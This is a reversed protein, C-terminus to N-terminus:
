ATNKIVFRYDTAAIAGYMRVKFREVIDKSFAADSDGRQRFIQIPFVEHWVFQRKFNGYFWNSESIGNLYASAYVKMGSYTNKFISTKNNETSRIEITNAIRDGTAKLAKPVLLACEGVEIYNGREDKMKGLLNEAADIDTYDVLANSSKVNGNGSTYLATAVGLPRYVNNNVDSIGALILQDQTEAAKEGILSARKLLQGTQDFVIAEETISLIRGYKLANTTVYKEEIGASEEYDMQEHVEKLGDLAGFGVIKDSQKMASYLDVLELGVKKYGTYADMVKKSILQGTIVPFATSDIAEQIQHDNEGLRVLNGGLTQNVPGVCVEWLNRLSIDEPKIEGKAIMEVITDGFAKEGISEKIEKLGRM